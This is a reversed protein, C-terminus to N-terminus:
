TVFGRVGVSLTRLIMESHDLYAARPALGSLQPTAEIGEHQFVFIQNANRAYSPFAFGPFDFILM